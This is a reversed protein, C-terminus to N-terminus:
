FKLLPLWSLENLDMVGGIVNSSTIPVAYQPSYYPLALCVVATAVIMLMLLLTWANTAWTHTLAAFHAIAPSCVLVLTPLLIPFLWPQFFMWFLIGGELTLLTYYLMRVQIKDDYKKNLYHIFGTISMLGTLVAASFWPVMSKPNAFVTTYDACFPNNGAQALAKHLRVYVNPIISRHNMLAVIPDHLPQIIESAHTTFTSFDGLVATVGAWIWYPVVLGILAAVLPRLELSRLYIGQSILLLPTLLLLPPWILSGLSLMLYTHFTDEAPSYKGYTEFLAYLAMSMFLMIMLSPQLTHVFGFATLVLLFLSSILRSRVRLLANVNSMEIVIYTALATCGWGLMSAVSYSGAPLWWLLTAAIAAAPLCISSEAIKNQLRHRM